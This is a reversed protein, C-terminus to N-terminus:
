SSQLLAAVSKKPLGHLALINCFANCSAVDCAVQVVFQLVLELLIAIQVHLHLCHDCSLSARESYQLM